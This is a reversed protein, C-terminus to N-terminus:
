FPRIPCYGFLRDRRWFSAAPVSYATQLSPAFRLAGLHGASRMANGSLDIAGNRGGALCNRDEGPVSMAPGAQNTRNTGIGSTILIM